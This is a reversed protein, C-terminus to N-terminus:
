LSLTLRMKAFSLLNFTFLVLTYMYTASEGSNEKKRHGIFKSFLLENEYKRREKRM